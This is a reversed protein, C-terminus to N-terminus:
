VLNYLRLEESRYSISVVLPKRAVLEDLDTSKETELEVILETQHNIM